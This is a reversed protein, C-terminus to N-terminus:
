SSQGAQAAKLLRDLTIDFLKFLDDAGDVGGITGPLEVVPMHSRKALWDGPRRDQYGAFIVMRAPQSALTKLVTELQTVTPPIGPKPELTAVEMLQLWDYLYAWYTHVSVVKMGALPRARLQWAQMAQEWRRAFDAHRAQYVSGQKADLQVLRESLAKAVAAIRRPDTHIHPNGFPHVDGEARDVSSPVDLMQVFRSAEFYGPQGPRVRPNNAKDALAPLWGLELDAGTCIVLDAQRFKAILSPRAQIKHPDQLGTTASYIDLNDGGLEKALAAWEPECAFVRLSAVGPLSAVLALAALFYATIRTM